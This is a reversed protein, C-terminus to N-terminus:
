PQPPIVCPAAAPAMAQRLAECTKFDQFPGVRLGKHPPGGLACYCTVAVWFYYSLIM